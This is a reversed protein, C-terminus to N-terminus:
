RPLLSFWDSQEDDNKLNRIQKDIKTIQDALQNKATNAEDAKTPEAIKIEILNEAGKPM